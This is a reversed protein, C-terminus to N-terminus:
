WKQKGHGKHSLGGSEAEEALSTEESAVSLGAVQLKVRHLSAVLVLKEREGADLSM